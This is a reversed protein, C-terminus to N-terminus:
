DVGTWQLFFFRGTESMFDTLRDVCARVYVCESVGAETATNELARAEADAISDQLQLVLVKSSNLEQSL